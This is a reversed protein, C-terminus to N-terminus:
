MIPSSLAKDQQTKFVELLQSLSNWQEAPRMSSLSKGQIWDSSRKVTKQRKERVRAGYIATLLRDTAGWYGGQLHQPVAALGGWLGASKELSCRGEKLQREEGPLHELGWGDQCDEAPCDRALKDIDQKYQPVWLPTVITITSALIKIFNFISLLKRM